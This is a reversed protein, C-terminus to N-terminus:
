SANALWENIIKRSYPGFIGTGKKFGQPVLIDKAHAEQFKILQQKTKLGFYNNEKGKSGAGTQSITFGNNNLFIQLNKIDNNTTLPKLDSKFKFGVPLGTSVVPSTNTSSASVNIVQISNQATSNTNSVLASPVYAHGGGGRHVVPTTDIQIQPATITINAVNAHAASNGLADQYSLEVTYVGDPISNATSSLIESVSNFGGVPIVNFTNSHGFEADRLHFVISDGVAPIFTLVLSGTHMDEPLIFTIPITDTDVYNSGAVPASLIPTATETDEIGPQKDSSIAHLIPLRGSVVSWVPTVSFDWQDDFPPNSSNGKFYNANPSDITDVGMCGSLDGSSACNTQGSTNQDYFNYDFINGGTDLGIFGGYSAVPHSVLGTSFNHDVMSNTAYGAFGGQQGNGEKIGDDGTVSGSAYSISVQSSDIWGAFGGIINDGGVNGKAYSNLVVAGGIGGAFGGAPDFGSTSNQASVDGTAFSQEIDAGSLACGVLGGVGCGLYTGSSTITNTAYSTLIQSGTVYGVLGGLFTTSDNATISGSASSNEVLSNGLLTAILGGVSPNYYNNEDIIMAVNAHDNDFHSNSAYGALAGMEHPGEVSGTVTLNQITAGLTTQFLAIDAFNGITDNLAVDITYGNGDITGSFPTDGSGVMINNGEGACPLDNMLVYNGSLNNNINEFDACSYIPGRIISVTREDTSITNGEIDAGYGKFTYNSGLSLSSFVTDYQTATANYLSSVEASSLSRNFIVVDDINGNIYAGDMRRGINIDQLLSRTGGGSVHEVGNVYLTEVTNDYVAVVHQWSGISAPTEVSDAINDFQWQGSGGIQILHGHADSFLAQGASSSNLYVWASLTFHDSVPDPLSVDVYSDTGNFVGARGFKGATYSEAGHWVGNTTGIDTNANNEFRWWGLVSHNFDTFVYHNGDSATSDIKIEFSNATSTASDIPTPSAFGITLPVLTAVEFISSPSGTGAINVASLRFDYDTGPLLGTVIATNTEAGVGDEFVNWSDDSPDAHHISYEPVFDTISSGGTDIPSNWFLTVSSSTLGVQQLDTPAGPVTPSLTLTGSDNVQPDTGSGRDGTNILGTTYGSASVSVTANDNAITIPCLYVGSGQEICVASGADITAGIIPAGSGSDTVTISHSFLLADSSTFHINPFNYVFWTPLDSVPQPTSYSIQFASDIEHTVYGDLTAEVDVISGDGCSGSSATLADSAPGALVSLYGSSTSGVSQWSGNDCRMSIDVTDLNVSDFERQVYVSLGAPRAYAISNSFFPLVPSLCGVIFVVILFKRLKEM